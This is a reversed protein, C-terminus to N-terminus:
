HGKVSSDPSCACYKGGVYRLEGFVPFDNPTYFRMREVIASM